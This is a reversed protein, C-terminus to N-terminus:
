RPITKLAYLRQKFRDVVLYVNGFMGKGLLKVPNLDKLSIADDQLEIRSILTNRLSEDLITYFDDKVLYLCTVPGNAIVSATRHDNFLMGREGFYDHKTITRLIVEDKVIDAKGSSILFFSNGSTNQHVIIEKDNFNIVKLLSILSNFKETPLSRLIHISRLAALADTNLTLQQMRGGLCVEFDTKTIEALVTDGYAYIDHDYVENGDNNIYDDGLCQFVEAIIKKNTKLGGNLVIYIRSGKGSGIPIVLKGDSYAVTKLKELVKVQQSKELKNFIKSKELAILKSNHYIINQLQSGLAANLKNRGIAVCKAETIATITATRMSNYLLAQEGFFDGKKMERIPTGNQTCQVRGDTIMYFLDGPDGERVIKDNKRFKLTTLTGVLSDKQALNLVSFLPVTDIFKKNEQYAQINM